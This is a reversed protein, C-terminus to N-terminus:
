NMIKAPKIECVDQSDGGGIKIYLNMLLKM